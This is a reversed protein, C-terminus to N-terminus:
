PAPMSKEWQSMYEIELKGKGAWTHDAESLLVGPHLAQYHAALLYKWVPKKCEPCSFPYNNGDKRDALCPGRYVKLWCGHQCNCPQAQGNRRMVATCHSLGGCFGCMSLNPDTSMHVDVYARLDSAKVFKGCNPYRCALQGQSAVATV